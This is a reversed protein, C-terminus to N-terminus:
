TIRLPKLTISKQKMEAFYSSKVSEDYDDLGVSEGQMDKIKKAAQSLTEGMCFVSVVLDKMQDVVFGDSVDVFAALQDQHESALKQRFFEERFEKSPVGVEIVRAFRSPRNKVRGPIRNIYNTCAIVVFNNVQLEGDLVSLLTSSSGQLYDDFEEYIVGILCSENNKRIIPVVQALANPHPNFLIVGGSDALKKAAKIATVTKGSGGPGYLLYGRKHVVGYTKFKEQTEKSMFNDVDALIEEHVSGKIELLSDTVPTIKEFYVRSDPTFALNYVGPPLSESVEGNKEIYFNNGVQKFVVEPKM